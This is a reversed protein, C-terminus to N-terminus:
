REPRQAKPRRRPRYQPFFPLVPIFSVGGGLSGITVVAMVPHAQATEAAFKKAIELARERSIIQSM